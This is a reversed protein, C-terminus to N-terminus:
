DAEAGAYLCIVDTHTVAFRIHTHALSVAHRGAVVPVANSISRRGVPRVQKARNSKVVINALMIIPYYKYKLFKSFFGAHAKAHTSVMTIEIALWFPPVPLVDVVMESAAPRAWLPSFVSTTSISEWALELM